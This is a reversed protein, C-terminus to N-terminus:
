RSAPGYGAGYKIREPDRGQDLLNQLEQQVFEEKMLMAARREMETATENESERRVIRWPAGGLDLVMGPRANRLQPDPAEALERTDLLRAPIGSGGEAPQLTLQFQEAFRWPHSAMYDRLRARSPAAFDRGIRDQLAEVLLQERLKRLEFHLDKDQDLGRKVAEGALIRRAILRDLLESRVAQSAQALPVGHGQAEHELEPITIDDDGIRAIVQGEPEPASCAALAIAGIM